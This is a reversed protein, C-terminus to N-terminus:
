ARALQGLLDAADVLGLESPVAFGAPAGTVVLFGDGGHEGTRLFPVPGIRGAAPHELGDVVEGFRVILDAPPADPDFPDSARPRSVALTVPRGSRLDRCARLQREWHDLEQLYRDAPVTGAAERGALNV